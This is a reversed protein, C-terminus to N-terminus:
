LNLLDSSTKKEENIYKRKNKEVQKKQKEREKGRLSNRNVNFPEINM